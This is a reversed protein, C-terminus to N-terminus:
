CRRQQDGESSNYSEAVPEGYKSNEVHQRLEDEIGSTQLGDEEKKVYEGNDFSKSRLLARLAKKENIKNIKAQEIYNPCNHCDGAGVYECFFIFKLKMIVNGCKTFKIANNILNM